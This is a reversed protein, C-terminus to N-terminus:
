FDEKADEAYTLSPAFEVKVDSWTSRGQNIEVVWGALTDITGSYGRGVEAFYVILALEQLTPPLDELSISGIMFAYFLGANKKANGDLVAAIATYKRAPRVVPDYPQFGRSVSFGIGQIMPNFNKIIEDRAENDGQIWVKAHWLRGASMVEGMSLLQVPAGDPARAAPATSSALPDVLPDVLADRAPADPTRLIPSMRGRTTTVM